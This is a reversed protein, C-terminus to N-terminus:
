DYVSKHVSAMIKCLHQNDVPLTEYLYFLKVLYTRDVKHQLLHIIKHFNWYKRFIRRLPIEIYRLETVSVRTFILM